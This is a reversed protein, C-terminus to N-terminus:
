ENLDGRKAKSWDVKRDPSQCLWYRMDHGFSSKYARELENIFDYIVEPTGWNKAKIHLIWDIIDEATQARLLSVDYDAGWGKDLEITKNKWDIHAKGM